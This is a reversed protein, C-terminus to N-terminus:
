YWVYSEIVACKTDTDNKFSESTGWSPRPWMWTTLFGVNRAAQHISTLMSQEMTIAMAQFKLQLRAFDCANAPLINLCDVETEWRFALLLFIEIQVQASVRFYLCAVCTLQPRCLHIAVLINPTMFSLRMRIACVYKMDLAALLHQRAFNYSEQWLLQYYIFKHCDCKTPEVEQCLWFMNFLARLLALPLLLFLSLSCSLSNHLDQPQEQERWKTHHPRGTLRDAEKQIKM